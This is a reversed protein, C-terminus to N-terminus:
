CNGIYFPNNTSALRYTDKSLYTCKSLCSFDLHSVLYKMGLEQKEINIKFFLVQDKKLSPFSNEMSSTYM